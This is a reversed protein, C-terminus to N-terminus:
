TIRITSAPPGAGSGLILWAKSAASMESWGKPQFRGLQSSLRSNLACSAASGPTRKWGPTPKARSTVRSPAASTVSLSPRWISARNSTAASPRSEGTRAALNGFGADGM